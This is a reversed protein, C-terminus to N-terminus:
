RFLSLGDFGASSLFVNEATNRRRTHQRKLVGIVMCINGTTKGPCRIVLGRTDGTQVREKSAREAEASEWAHSCHWHSM